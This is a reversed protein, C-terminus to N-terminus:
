HWPNLLNVWKVRPKKDKKPMQKEIRDNLM